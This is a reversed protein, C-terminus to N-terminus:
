YSYSTGECYEAHGPKKAESGEMLELQLLDMEWRSSLECGVGEIKM